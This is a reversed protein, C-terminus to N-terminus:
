LAEVFFGILSPLQTMTSPSVPGSPQVPANAHDEHSLPPLIIEGWYPYAPFAQFIKKKM